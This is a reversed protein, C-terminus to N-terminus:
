GKEKQITKEEMITYILSVRKNDVFRRMFESIIIVQDLQQLRSLRRKYARYLFIWFAPNWRLWLGVRSKGVYQSQAICGSCKFFAAGDCVEQEKYFLNGKPCFPTYSNITAIIKKKKFPFISTTNLCHIVDFQEQEDLERVAKRLSCPFFLLRKINEKLSWPNDGTKLYRHVKVKKEMKEENVGGTQSTLVHVEIGQDALSSALTQASLEGGGFIKPPYYESVLLIKMRKDKM